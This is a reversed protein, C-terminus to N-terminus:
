DLAQGEPGPAEVDAPGKWPVLMPVASRYRRYARGHAVVLDQEELVTGVFIWATWLVNFFLRDVTLDPGSWILLLAFFYFPHRVWRYPGRITLPQPAHRIGNSRAKLGETGFADFSELALSSWAFGALGLLFVSRAFWRFAGQLELLVTNSPQWLLVVATLVLGSIITYLARHYHEPLCGALRARLSRRIMGSHMGFFLISLAGNWCTSGTESFGLDILLWPGSFLFWGFLLLPASGAFRILGVLHPAREPQNKSVM